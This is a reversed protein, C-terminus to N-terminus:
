FNRGVTWRLSILDFTNPAALATTDATIKFYYEHGANCGATSTSALAAVTRGNSANAIIALNEGASFVPDDIAGGDVCAMQVTLVTPNTSDGSRGAVEVGVTGDWDPPLEFHDQMSQSSTNNAFSLVASVASGSNVCKAVPANASPLSFASFAVGSQCKAAVYQHYMAVRRAPVHAVPVKGGADLPAYGNPQGKNGAAEAGIDSPMLADTGGAAHMTKHALPDRADWFRADDGAAVSGSTTGVSRVAADGLGLNVRAQATNELDSLNQARDLPTYGLEPASEMAAPMWSWSPSLGPGNSTLMQGALGPALPKLLSGGGGVVISGDFFEGTYSPIM